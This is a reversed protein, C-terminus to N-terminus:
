SLIAQSIIYRVKFFIKAYCRETTSMRLVFKIPQELLTLWFDSLSKRTGAQFKAFLMTVSALQGFTMTKRSSFHRRTHFIFIVFTLVPDSIKTLTIGHFKFCHNNEHM